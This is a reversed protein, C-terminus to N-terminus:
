KYALTSFIADCNKRLEGSLENHFDFCFVPFFNHLLTVDTFQQFRFYIEMNWTCNKEVVRFYEKRRKM